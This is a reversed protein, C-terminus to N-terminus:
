NCKDLLKAKQLKSAPEYLRAPIFVIHIFMQHEQATRHSIHTHTWQDPDTIHPWRLNKKRHAKKKRHISVQKNWIQSFRHACKNWIQSFHHACKTDTNTKGKHFQNWREMHFFKSSWASDISEINSQECPYKWPDSLSM